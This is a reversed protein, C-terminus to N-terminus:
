QKKEKIYRVLNNLGSSSLGSRPKFKGTTPYFDIKGGQFDTVIFQIGNNKLEYDINEKELKEIAKLQNDNLM